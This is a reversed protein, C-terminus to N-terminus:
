LSCSKRRISSRNAKGNLCSVSLFNRRLIGNDGKSDWAIGGERAWVVGPEHQKNINSNAVPKECGKFRISPPQPSQKKIEGPRGGAQNTGQVGKPKVAPVRDRGWDPTCSSKREGTLTRDWKEQLLLSSQIREKVEPLGKERPKTHEGKV